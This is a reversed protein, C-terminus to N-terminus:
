LPLKSQHAIQVLEQLYQSLTPLFSSEKDHIFFHDGTFMQLTFTKCTQDQWNALNSRSITDDQLGGLVTISCDLPAEDTHTYTDIMAFDARLSPLFLQMLEADNAIAEPIANYRHRLESIFAAEPLQYIPQGTLPVQPAPCSCVFLHVPQPEGQRRLQRAIEFGLTAGMSHGLFVFPIDLYPLLIPALAQILPSIRTFSSEKLRRGRGPLQVACVEVEAPLRTAWGSYASALGGACPFCFLRLQAQSNPKPCYLWSTSFPQVTM